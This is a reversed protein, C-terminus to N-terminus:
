TPQRGLGGRFSRVVFSGTRQFELEIFFAASIEVRRRTTCVADTGCSNLDSTWFDLGGIDPERNLLDRYQQSIFFFNNELPNILTRPIYTVEPANTLSLSTQESTHSLIAYADPEGGSIGVVPFLGCHSQGTQCGTNGSGYRSKITGDNRL